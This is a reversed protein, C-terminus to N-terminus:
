KGLTASVDSAEVKCSKYRTEEWASDVSAVLGAILMQQEGVAYWM